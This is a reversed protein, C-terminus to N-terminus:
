YYILRILQKIFERASKTSQTQRESRVLKAYIILMYFVFGSYNNSRLM